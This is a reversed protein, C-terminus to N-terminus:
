SHEAHELVTSVQKKKKWQGNRKRGENGSLSLCEKCVTPPVTYIKLLPNANYSM